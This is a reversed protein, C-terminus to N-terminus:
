SRDLSSGRAPLHWVRIAEADPNATQADDLAAASMLGTQTDAHGAVSAANISAAQLADSVTEGILSRAAFTAAFADGAGATGMVRSPFAPCFSLEGDTAAFAGHAGDTLLLCKPGLALLASCYAPLTMEFGGGVLGRAVLEPPEEGPELKLAVGGEGFRGVLYPVLADAETRNISLIDIEGLCGAVEDTRASLQRIGPNAVVMAGNAQARAIIPRFCAASANSLGSVYVMEVAFADDKLDDEVLLTNAGRFSFIAADRTHSSIIVAAGTPADDTCVAWDTAVGEAGLRALVEEGRRDCGLKVLTAVDLGLRKMCVAANVAGGGCHTSVEIAESKRGEELLLFATDANAMTMREIRDSEIIAITDVTAGGITLCKM